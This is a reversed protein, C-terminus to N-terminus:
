RACERTNVRMTSSEKSGEKRGEKSSCPAVKKVAALRMAHSLSRAAYRLAESVLLKLGYRLAESVLLKLGYRLAESVLLQLGYSLAESV